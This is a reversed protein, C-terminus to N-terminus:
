NEWHGYIGWSVRYHTISIMMKNGHNELFEQINLRKLEKRHGIPYQISGDLILVVKQNGVYSFDYLVMQTDEPSYYLYNLYDKLLLDDSPIFDTYYPYFNMIMEYGHCVYEKNSFDARYKSLYNDRIYQTVEFM